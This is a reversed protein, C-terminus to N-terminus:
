AVDQGAAKRVIGAIREWVDESPNHLAYSTPWFGDPTDLQANVSLGFTSYRLKDGDGSRFFCVVKGDLAYGPQGYYTKASLEPAVEAVIDHLRQAMKRDGETMKAIKAVVDAEDAAAKKAGKARKAEARLEAARAKVADREQASLTGNNDAAAM